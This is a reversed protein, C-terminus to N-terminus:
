RLSWYTFTTGGTTVEISSSAVLEPYEEDLEVTYPRRDRREEKRKYAARQVESMSPHQFGYRSLLTEWGAASRPLDFVGLLSRAPCWARDRFRDWESYTPGLKDAKDICDYLVSSLAALELLIDENDPIVSM